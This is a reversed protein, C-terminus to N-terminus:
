KQEAHRRAIRQDERDHGDDEGPNRQQCDPQGRPTRTPDIRDHRQSVLSRRTWRERVAVRHALRATARMRERLRCDAQADNASPPSGNHWRRVVNYRHMALTYAAHNLERWAHLPHDSTRMSALALRLTGGGSRLREFAAADILGTTVEPAVFRELLSRDHFHRQVLLVSVIVFGPVFLVPYLVMGIGSNWLAHMFVAVIYGALPVIWRVAGRRGVVLGLAIGTFM